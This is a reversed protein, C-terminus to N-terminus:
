NFIDKTLKSFILIFNLFFLLSYIKLHVVYWFKHYDHPWLKRAHEVPSGAITFGESWMLKQFFSSIRAVGYGSVGDAPRAAMLKQQMPLSFLGSGVLEIEDLLSKPISHNVVQFVGWTRCAHGVLETANENNLDIIPVSEGNVGGGGCSLEDNNSAWAHTEPLEKVSNLDLFKHHINVPHDVFADALKTSPM